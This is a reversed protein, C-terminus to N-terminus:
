LRGFFTLVVSLVWKLVPLSVTVPNTVPTNSPTFAVTGPITMVMNITARDFYVFGKNGISPGQWSKNREVLIGDVTTWGDFKSNHWSYSSANKMEGLTPQPMVKKGQQIASEWSPFWPTVWTISRKESNAVGTLHALRFADFWDVTSNSRINFYQKFWGLGRAADLSVRIDCGNNKNAHTVAELDNPNHITGTLDTSIDSQAFDTCGFPMPPTPPTFETDEIDQNPMTLGADAFFENDFVPTGASGLLHNSLFDYDTHKIRCPQTGHNM